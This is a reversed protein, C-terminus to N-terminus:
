GMEVKVQNNIGSCILSSAFDFAKFSKMRQARVVPLAIAFILHLAHSTRGTRDRTGPIAPYGREDLAGPRAIREGIPDDPQRSRGDYGDCREKNELEPDVGPLRAM